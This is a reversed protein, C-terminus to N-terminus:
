EIRGADISRPGYEISKAFIPRCPVRGRIGADHDVLEEVFDVADGQAGNGLCGEPRSPGVQHELPEQPIGSVVLADLAEDQHRTLADLRDDTALDFSLLLEVVLDEDLLEVRDDLLRAALTDRCRRNSEAVGDLGHGVDLERWSQPLSELLRRRQEMDGLGPLGLIEAFRGLGHEHVSRDVDFAHDLHLARLQVVAVQRVDDDLLQQLVRM